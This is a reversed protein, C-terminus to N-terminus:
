LRKMSDFAFSPIPKVGQFPVWNGDGAKNRHVGDLSGSKFRLKDFCYAYVSEDKAQKRELMRKFKDARTERGIFTKRYRNEFEIWSTGIEAQNARFWQKAGEALHTQALQLCIEDTWFYLAKKSKIERLWYKAEDCGSEDNFKAFGNSLDPM